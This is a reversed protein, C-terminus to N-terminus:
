LNIQDQHLHLWHGMLLELNLAQKPNDLKKKQYTLKVRVKEGQMEQFLLGLHATQVEQPNDM